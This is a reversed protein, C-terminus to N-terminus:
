PQAGQQRLTQHKQWERLCAQFRDSADSASRIPQYHHQSTHQRSRTSEREFWARLPPTLTLDSYHYLAAIEAWLNQKLAQQEILLCDGREGSESLQRYYGSLVELLPAQIREASEPRALLRLAPALSSFQSAVAENPHRTCGILYADPFTERLSNHLSTFSPNKSLFRKESGHFYLHNRVCRRYYRMVQRRWWRPLRSDFRGLNWAYGSGPALLFLLFCANIPWLLLFDEEAETLGIEHIGDMERRWRSPLLRSLRAFPSLVRALALWAYRESVTPALVCEWTTLTTLRPDEALLRQLFTTGSRPIGTIFIPRDVSTRRLTPFFLADAIFGIIHLLNLIVQAIWLGTFLIVRKPVARIGADPIAKVLLWLSWIPAVALIVLTM